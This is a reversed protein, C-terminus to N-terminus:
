VVVMLSAGFESRRRGVYARGRAAPFWRTWGKGNEEMMGERESMPCSPVCWAGSGEL